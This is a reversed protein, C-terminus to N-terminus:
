SVEKGVILTVHNPRDPHSTFVGLGGKSAELAQKLDRIIEARRAKLEPSIFGSGDESWHVLKFSLFRSGPDAPEGEGFREGEALREQEDNLGQLTLWILRGKWYFTNTTEASFEERGRSVRRFYIDRERDITWQRSHNFGLYVKKNIEEIHYKKVDDPPIYENVFPM